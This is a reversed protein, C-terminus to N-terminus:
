KTESKGEIARQRVPEVVNTLPIQNMRAKKSDREIAHVLRAKHEVEAKLTDDKVTSLHNRHRKAKRGIQRLVDDTSACIESGSRVVFATATMCGVVLRKEDLVKDRWARTVSAWRNSKYPIGTIETVTEYPIMDGVKLDPFAAEILCVDPSTPQGDRFGIYKQEDSM